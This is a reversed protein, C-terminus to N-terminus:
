TGCFTSTHRPYLTYTHRHRWKYNDLHRSLKDAWVNAASRIYCARLNIMNKDLLCWLRRLEEMMIHSRSNLRTPIHHIAKDEHMLVNRGALQPLFSEVEHRVAKVGEVYHTATRGKREMIRSGRPAQEIGRGMRLRLKGHTHVRDRRTTSPKGNSQSHV